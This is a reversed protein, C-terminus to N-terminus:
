FSYRKYSAIIDKAREYDAWHSDNRYTVSYDGFSEKKVEDDTTTGANLIGAALVTAALEIDNPVSGYGWKANVTVNQTGEPFVQDDLEIATYPKENAPKTYYDDTSLPSDDIDREVSVVEHADDIILTTTDDGDYVRESASNSTGFTRNTERDIYDEVAEVWNTIQPGYSQDIDANIYNEIKEKSTYM